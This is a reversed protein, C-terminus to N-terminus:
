FGHSRLTERVTEIRPRSRPDAAWCWEILAWRSNAMRNYHDRFPREGRHIHRHLTIESPDHRNYPIHNYPISKAEGHFLQLFLIGLSFIDSERTPNVISSQEDIPSLEPASYRLNRPIVTTFGQIEPIVSIGFDTIQADGSDSILINDVKLDGHIVSNRHLHDLGRAVDRAKPLKQDPYRSIYGLFDNNRVFRSVLSPPHGPIKHIGLFEAVNAHQSVRIWTIIERRIREEIKPRFIPTCRLIKIAVPIQHVHGTHDRHSFTGKYVDGYSGEGIHAARNGTSFDVHNTIDLRALEDALGTERITPRARSRPPYPQKAFYYNSMIHMRVHLAIVSIGYIDILLVSAFHEL